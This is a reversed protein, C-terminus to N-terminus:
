SFADGSDFYRTEHKRERHLMAKANPKLNGFKKKFEAEALKNKADIEAQTPTSDGSAPPMPKPFATPPPPASDKPAEPGGTAVSTKAPDASNAPTANAFDFKETVDYVVPMRAALQDPEDLIGERIQKANCSKVITDYNDERETYQRLAHSSGFRHHLRTERLRFVVHDVRVWVRQLVYFYTQTARVRVSLKCTGHDHLEDEFLIIDSSWVISEGAKPKLSDFDIKEETESPEIAADTSLTRTTGRYKTSYTWDFEQAEPIDAGAKEMWKESMSVKIDAARSCAALADYAKFAFAVDLDKNLIVLDTEGFVMEPLTM